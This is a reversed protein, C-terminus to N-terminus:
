NEQEDVNVPRGNKFAEVANNLVAIHQKPNAVFDFRYTTEDGETSLRISGYDFLQQFIGKQDYSADEINLLSVTQEHHSFLSTQIEQIVSENTLYFRNKSYVYYSVYTGLVILFSFLLFPVFVNAVSAMEGTINFSKVVLDYNFLVSLTMSLLLIGAFVPLFLGIPHRRVARIIYEGESLNLTPFIIMSRDHKIKTEPSVEQQYPEMARSVHVVQHTTTQVPPHAYLPKGEADYAVPKEYQGTQDETM